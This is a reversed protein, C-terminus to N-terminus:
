NMISSVVANGWQSCFYSAQQDAYVECDLGRRTCICALSWAAYMHPPTLIHFDIKPDVEVVQAIAYKEFRPSNFAKNIFM